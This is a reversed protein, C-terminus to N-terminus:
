LNYYKIISDTAMIAAESDMSDDPDDCRDIFIKIKEIAMTYRVARSDYLQLTSM